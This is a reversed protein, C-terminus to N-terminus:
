PAGISGIVGLDMWILGVTSATSTTQGDVVYVFTAGKNNAQIVPITAFGQALGLKVFYDRTQAPDISGPGGVYLNGTDVGQILIAAVKVGCLFGILAYSHNAKFQDNTSNIAVGVGIQGATAASSPRVWSVYHDGVKTGANVYSQVQAWTAFNAAIGGLNPYYVPQALVETEAAAITVLPTYQVTLVDTSWAPEEYDLGAFAGGSFASTAPQSYFTTGVTTDHMRPSKIQFYGALNSQGFPALLSGALSNPTARISYSQGSNATLAEYTGAALAATTAYGTVVELAAGM